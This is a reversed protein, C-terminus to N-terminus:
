GPHQVDTHWLCQLHKHVYSSCPLCYVTLLSVSLFTAATQRVQTCAGISITNHACIAVRMHTDPLKYEVVVYQICQNHLTASLDRLIITGIDEEFSKTGNKWFVRRCTGSSRLISFRDDCLYTRKYLSNVLFSIVQASTSNGIRAREPTSHITEKKCTVKERCNADPETVKV